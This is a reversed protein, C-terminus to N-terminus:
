RFVRRVLERLLEGLSAEALTLQVRVYRDVKEEMNEREVAANYRDVEANYADIDDDDPETM